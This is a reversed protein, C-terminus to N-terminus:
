RIVTKNRLGVAAGPMERKYQTVKAWARLAMAKHDDKVFPWLAAMDLKDIDTVEAFGEKAMTVTTDDSVRARVMDGPKAAASAEAEQRQDRAAEQKAAADAATVAAAKAADEHAKINDANRARAAAAERERVVKEAADREAALRQEDERAKRAAEERVRREEDLKRQNYDNVRAVLIDAAGPKDTKNRRQCKEILGFFFKDVAQGARLHPAKEKEHFAALRATADRLRKVIGSLVGMTEDDNVVTPCQRAEELLGAVTQASEQYDRELQEAVLQAHNPAANDGAVARENMLENNSM